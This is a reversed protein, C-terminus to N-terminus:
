TQKSGLSLFSLYLVHKGAMKLTFGGVTLRGHKNQSTLFYTGEDQISASAIALQSGNQIVNQCDQSGKCWHVRVFWKIVIIYHVNAMSQAKLQIVYYMEFLSVSFASSYGIM